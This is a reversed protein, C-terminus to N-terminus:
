KPLVEPNLVKFEVRRNTSRGEPTNNPALPQSEGYGRVTYSQPDLQPAQGLIYDLVARARAESLKQNAAEQGRSDTHGGIEVRLEPWRVLGAAVSDLAAYSEPRVTSKGNEFQVNLRLVGADLRPLPRRAQAVPCGDPGVSTGAATDPCRDLGDHVGDKDADLPCGRADVTAGAPTAACADLGDAVGDQDADLPCGKADVRAGRPTEYCHDLGDAVGDGDADLPCGTADVPTGSPTDPCRDEADGIGDGDADRSRGGVTLGVGATAMIDHLWESPGDQEVMVDRADLRVHV